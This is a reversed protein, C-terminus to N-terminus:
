ETIEGEREEAEVIVTYTDDDAAKLSVEIYVICWINLKTIYAAQPTFM